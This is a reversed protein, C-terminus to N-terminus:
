WDHDRVNPHWSGYLQLLTMFYGLLSEM